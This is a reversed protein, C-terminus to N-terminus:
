PLLIPDTIIVQDNYIVSADSVVSDKMSEISSRDIFRRRVSDLMSGSGEGVLAEQVGNGNNSRCLSRVVFGTSTVCIVIAAVAVVKKFSIPAIKAVLAKKLNHFWM